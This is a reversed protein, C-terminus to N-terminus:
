KGVFRHAKENYELRGPRSATHAAQGPWFAKDCGEVRFALQKKSLNMVDNHKTVTRWSFATAM